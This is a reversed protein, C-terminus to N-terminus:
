YLVQGEFSIFVGVALGEVHIIEPIMPSLMKVFPVAEFTYKEVISATLVHPLYLHNSSLCMRIRTSSVTM